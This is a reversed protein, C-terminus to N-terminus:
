LITVGINLNSLVAILNHGGIFLKMALGDLSLM